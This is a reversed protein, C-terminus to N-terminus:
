ETINGSIKGYQASAHRLNEPLILSGSRVYRVLVLLLRGLSRALTTSLRPSAIVGIRQTPAKVLAGAESWATSAASARPSRYDEVAKM